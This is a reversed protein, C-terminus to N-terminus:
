TSNWECERVTAQLLRSAEELVEDAFREADLSVLAVLTAYLSTKVTLQTVCKFLTDLVYDLKSHLVRLLTRRLEDLQAETGPKDGLRTIKEYLESDDVEVGESDGALAPGEDVEVEQIDRGPGARYGDEEDEEMPQRRGDEGSMREEDDRPRKRSAM